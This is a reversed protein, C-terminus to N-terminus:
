TTQRAHCYPLERAATTSTAANGDLRKECLIAGNEQPVCRLMTHALCSTEATAHRHSPTTPESKLMISPNQFKQRFVDKITQIKKM